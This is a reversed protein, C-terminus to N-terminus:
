LDSPMTVQLWQKKDAQNPTWHDAKDGYPANLRGRQPGFTYFNDMLVSSATLQSDDIKGNYSVGLKDNCM